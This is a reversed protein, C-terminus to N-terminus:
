RRVRFSRVEQLRTGVQIRVTYLGPPWDAAPVPTLTERQRYWGRLVADARAVQREPQDGHLGLYYWTATLPAGAEADDIVAYTVVLAHPDTARVVAVHGPALWEPPTGAFIGKVRIPLSCYDPPASPQQFAVPVIVLGGIPVGYYRGPRFRWQRAAEIAARDLSRNRSTKDVQVDRVQGHADVSLLLRVTGFAGACAADEPYEPAAQELLSVDNSPQDPDCAITPAPPPPPLTFGPPPPPPPPPPPLEAGPGIPTPPPAICPPFPADAPADDAQQAHVPAVLLLLAVCACITAALTRTMPPEPTSRHIADHGLIRERQVIKAPTPFERGPRAVLVGAL